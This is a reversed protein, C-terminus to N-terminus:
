VTRATKRQRRRAAGRAQRSLARKSAAARGKGKLARRSAASRKSSTKRRRGSQGQKYSYGFNLHLLNGLYTLFQSILPRDYGHAKNWSAVQAPKAGRGLVEHVPSGSILHLLEFTIAAIGITIVIAVLLRRIIYGIM